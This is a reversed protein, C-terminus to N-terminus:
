AKGGGKEMSGHPRLFLWTALLAPQFRGFADTITRESIHIRGVPAVGDAQINIMNIPNLCADSSFLYKYGSVRCAEIVDKSYAGHPFSMSEVPRGGLYGSLAKRSAELEAAPDPVRTLPRHSMGHGGIVHACAALRNLEGTDLMAPAAGTDMDGTVAELAHRDLVSLTAIIKRIAAEDLPPSAPLDLRLGQRVLASKLHDLGDPRTALFGYVREEWFPMRQNVAGGAVFILASMGFRDLVPQAHRATDAWGDDFTVLLSRPPLAAKGHMAEFVQAPTVVHYHRRFFALCGAFAEPTMTWEPDAGIRRAEAAPLVRHFMAVTLRKRNSMRHYLSLLGIRYALQKLMARLAGTLPKRLGSGGDHGVMGPLLVLLSRVHGGLPHRTLFVAALWGLAAGAIGISLPLWPRVDGNQWMTRVLVPVAASAATILASKGCASLLQSFRIKVTKHLYHSVVALSLLESMILAAAIAELGHPALILIAAIRLPQVLLQSGTSSRVQGNAVMAQSAFLSVSAIAAAGCMLEVVPVSADWQPGYLTRVMPYSLLMLVAFFPWALATLYEVAMLYPEVLDKGERRIQAFYPLVLPLVASTILKTFLQVLGNARSFYGVAAMSMVKGIIVDPINTGAIAAANGVSAISGFSLIARINRFSPTWPVGAPRLLSAAVGFSLIGAFNAWALSIAGFGHLALLLAVSSHCALSAMKVVFVTRVHMERRFIGVLFAGFPSVAFSAAMVLLIDRIEPKGYFRALLSSCLLLTMSVLMALIIAVGLASRMKERTLEREQILYQTVGFDRFVHLLTMLFASVSYVGIDDPSLVRSLVLVVLFQVVLELYQGAFSIGIFKKASM